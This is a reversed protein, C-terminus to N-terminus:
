LKRLAAHEVEVYLGKGDAVRCFPGGDHVLLVVKEGAPLEGNPPEGQQASTFYFPQRRTVEHTFQDPAPVIRNRAPITASEPLVMPEPRLIGKM